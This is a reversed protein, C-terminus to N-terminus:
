LTPYGHNISHGFPRADRTQVYEKVNSIAQWEVAYPHTSLVKTAMTVNGITIQM